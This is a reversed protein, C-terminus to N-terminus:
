FILVESWVNQGRRITSTCPPVLGSEKSRVAFRRQLVSDDVGKVFSKAFFCNM